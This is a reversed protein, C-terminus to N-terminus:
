RRVARGFAHRPHFAAVRVDQDARSFRDLRLDLAQAAGSRTGGVCAACPGAGGCTLIVVSAWGAITLMAYIYLAKKPKASRISIEHEGSRGGYIVAVTTKM